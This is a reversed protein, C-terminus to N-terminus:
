LEGCAGFNQTYKLPRWLRDIEKGIKLHFFIVVYNLSLMLRQFLLANEQCEELWDLVQICVRSMKWTLGVWNKWTSHQNASSKINVWFLNKRQPPFNNYFIQNHFFINGDFKVLKSNNARWAGVFIYWNKKNWSTDAQFMEHVYM